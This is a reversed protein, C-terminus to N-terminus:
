LSCLATQRCSRRMIRSGLFVLIIPLVHPEPITYVSLVIQSNAPGYIEFGMNTVERLDRENIAHWTGDEWAEGYGSHPYPNDGAGWTQASAFDLTLEASSGVTITQAVGTWATNNRYDGSPYGSGGTMGTNMFLKMTIPGSGSEYRVPMVIGDWGYISVNHHPSAHPDSPDNPLYGGDWELGASASVPWEDGIVTKGGDVEDGLTITFRVNDGSPLLTRNDLTGSGWAEATFEANMLEEVPCQYYAGSADLALVFVALYLYWGLFSNHQYKTM